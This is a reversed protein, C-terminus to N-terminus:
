SGSYTCECFCPPLVALISHNLEGEQFSPSGFIPHRYTPSGLVVPSSAPHCSIGQHRRLSQNGQFGDRGPTELSATEAASLLFGRASLIPPEEGSGVLHGSSLSPFYSSWPILLCFSIPTTNRWEGNQGMPRGRQCPSTQNQATDQPRTCSRNV